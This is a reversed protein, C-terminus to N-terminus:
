TGDFLAQAVILLFESIMMTEGNIYVSHGFNRCPLGRRFYRVDKSIYEADGSISGGRALFWVPDGVDVRGEIAPM